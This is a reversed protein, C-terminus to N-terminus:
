EGDLDSVRKRRLVPQGRSKRVKEESELYQTAMATIARRVIEIGRFHFDIDTHPRGRRTGRTIDLSWLAANVKIERYVREGKPTRVSFHMPVLGALVMLEPTFAPDVALGEDELFSFADQAKSQAVELDMPSIELGQFFTSSDAGPSRAFPYEGDALHPQFEANRLAAQESFREAREVLTDAFEPGRESILHHLLVAAFITQKTALLRLSPRDEAPPQVRALVESETFEITVSSVARDSRAAPTSLMLTLLFEPRETLAERLQRPTM